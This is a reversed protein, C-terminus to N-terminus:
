LTIGLFLESIPKNTKWHRTQFGISKASDIHQISDDIFLTENAKINADDLLWNFTSQDPKRRGIEHSLYVKNFLPKLSKLGFRSNLEKDIYEIHISNTNSLLYLCYQNSLNELLHINEEPMAILISNWATIIDNRSCSPLLEQMSKIFDQNSIKGTELRDFLNNQTKQSFHNDFNDIGLNEFAKKTLNYDIDYLVGGLDFLINKIKNM